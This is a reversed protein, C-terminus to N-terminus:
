WLRVMSRPRPLPYADLIAAYRKWNLYAKESRRSLWKRWALRVHHWLEGLCRGNGAVGFYNYHGFLRSALSAHQEPVPDHRFRRCWDYASSIARRLRAARTKFANAWTGARTRRWHLTFGLFDFTSPGKGPGDRGSGGDAGDKPPRRYDLLRTKDPHLTLGFAAMRKPLVEYVARADDERECGVVFDDAYRVLVARGKLRPRVDREFWLDLAHHLYVNGLLPSLSSGQVTGTDPSSLEEGDLVGANLCKGVLRLLSGDAVRLRLLEVLRKRDLSDFFSVIDAEVVWNMAGSHAAADLARLADHASRGPRFGFSCSLFDQEYVAGLVEAIAGQVVKDEVCAVGIPRRGGKDKPIFVRRIPQHRYTMAKMRGHLGRLNAELDRAYDDKTVGDAGAAAERRLRGFARGLAAEDILHALSHFMGERERKAREAIRLLQPSLTGSTSADAM